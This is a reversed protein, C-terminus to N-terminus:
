NSDPKFLSLDISYAMAEYGADNPHLHDGSDFAPLMTAPNAPDRLAKDFDLVADFEGSNRVFANVAQRKAEGEPSAYGAGVFPTLTGGYIRLGRDHVRAIIQRYGAIIDDASVAQSAYAAIQPFGIDNIGELLTVYRVGPQALVDRDLREQANPGAIENLVRNGSIGENVVGVRNGFRGQLRRSFDDPWRRDLNPTSNYGDTISDGLTVVAVAQAAAAVEVASLLPRVQIAAPSDLRASGTEDGAAVYSTQVALSHQTLPGTQQPLFISVALDSQAAVALDVPDSTAQAGVPITISTQGSFTLPRDSRAVIADNGASRAVHAGGVVLATTGLANSLRIRVTGGGISLHAIERLTQNGYAATAPTAGPLPDSPSAGWTGVWHPAPAAQALVDAPAAALAASAVALPALLRVIRTHASM